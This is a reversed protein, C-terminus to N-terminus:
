RCIIAAACRLSRRACILRSRRAGAPACNGSIPPPLGPPRSPQPVSVPDAGGTFEVARGRGVPWGAIPLITRLADHAM